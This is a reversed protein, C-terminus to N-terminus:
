PGGSSSFGGHVDGKYEDNARNNMNFDVGQGSGSSSGRRRDVVVAVLSVVAVIGLIWLWLEM